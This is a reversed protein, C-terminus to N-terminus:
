LFFRPPRNPKNPGVPTPPPNPKRGNFPEYNKPTFSIQKLIYGVGNGITQWYYRYNPDGYRFLDIMDVTTDYIEGANHFLNYTLKNIDTITDFYGNIVQLYEFGSFYCAFAIPNVSYFIRRLTTGMKDFLKLEFQTQLLYTSENL